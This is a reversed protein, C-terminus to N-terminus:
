DEGTIANLMGNFGAKCVALVHCELEESRSESECIWTEDGDDNVTHVVRVKEGDSMTALMLNFSCGFEMAINKITSM